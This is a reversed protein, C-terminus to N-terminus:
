INKALENKIVTIMKEFEEMEFGIHQYIIKGDRGIVFNRPIMMRAYKSYIERKPDPAMPLDFGKEDKFKVLEETTHERGICILVFDENDIKKYIESELYPMEKMCPGCWTAFYNILIVKGRLKEISIEKGDLTTATFQPAIDGKFVYTTTDEESKNDDSFATFDNSYIISTFLLAILAPYIISRM